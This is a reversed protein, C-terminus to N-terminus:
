LQLEEKLGRYRNGYVRIIDSNPTTWNLETNIADSPSCSYNIDFAENIYSVYQAKEIKISQVYKKNSDRVVVKCNAVKSGDKTTATITAIGEKM